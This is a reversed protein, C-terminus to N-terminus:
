RNNKQRRAMLIKTLFILPGIIPLFLTGLLWSPRDGSNLTNTTFIIIWSIVFLIAMVFILIQWVLLGIGPTLLDM